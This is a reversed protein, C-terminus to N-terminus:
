SFPWVIPGFECGLIRYKKRSSLYQIVEEKWEALNNM